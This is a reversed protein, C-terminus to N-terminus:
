LCSPAYDACCDGYYECSDDCYCSGDASSGGCADVCSNGAPAPDGAACAGYCVAPCVMGEQCNSLCVSTDCYMGEGCADDSLCLQQSAVPEVTSFVESVHFIKQKGISTTKTVLKGSVVLNKEFITTLFASEQEASVGLASFDVDTVQKVSTSNLKRADLSPCPAKICTIGNPALTYYSGTVESGTSASFAKMVKVAAYPVPAVDTVEVISGSLLVQGATIAARVDAAQTEGLGLAAMDFDAVYCEEQKTGDLCTTKAKNVAKVYVGGCMPFACKRFDQRTVVYVTDGSVAAEETDDAEVTGVTSEPACAAIPALLVLGAILNRFEM